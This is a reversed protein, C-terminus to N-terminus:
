EWDELEEPPCGVDLLWQKVEEVMPRWQEEDIDKCKQLLFKAELLIEAPTYFNSDITVFTTQGDSTAMVWAPANWFMVCRIDLTGNHFHGEDNM